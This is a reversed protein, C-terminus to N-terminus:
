ETVLYLNENDFCIETTHNYISIMDNMKDVFVGTEPNSNKGFSVLLDHEKSDVNEKLHAGSNQLFEDVPGEKILSIRGILKGVTESAKGVGKLVNNEISRTSLQELHESCKMFITRYDMSLKEIENKTKSINEKQFNGSLMIEILSAMSFTYLCLRYYQFKKLLDNLTSKVKAQAVVIKKSEVIDKVMKQYSLMNKRATRQIDLVLKHNSSVFHENDWNNKYKEIITYLTEVDAEIESEKEIELFAIIQKGMEAIKNLQNEISYLAIAMMFTSPDIPLITTTTASVADAAQLKAFKSTGAATKFAGWFNGDNAVKLADGVSENALRYLGNMNFSTTQTVTRMAPILAAMGVGLLSLKDIPMSITKKDSFVLRTDMLIENSIEALDSSKRNVIEGM